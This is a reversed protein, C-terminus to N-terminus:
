SYGHMSFLAHVYITHAFRERASATRTYSIDPGNGMGLSILMFPKGKPILTLSFRGYFHGSCCCYYYCCCCCCGPWAFSSFFICLLLVLLLCFSFYVLHCYYYRIQQRTQSTFVRAWEKRKSARYVFLKLLLTISLSLSLLISLTSLSLSHFSRCFFFLLIICSWGVFEVVEWISGLITLYEDDCDYAVFHVRNIVWNMRLIYAVVFLRKRENPVRHCILARARAREDYYLRAAFLFARSREVARSEWESEIVYFVIWRLTHTYRTIDTSQLSLSLLHM